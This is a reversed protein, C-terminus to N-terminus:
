KSCSHKCILDSIQIEDLNRAILMAELQTRAQGGTGILAGKKCDKKALIDLAAGCAAGTRLQTVYSGDLLGEIVGTETDVILIKAHISPMGKQIKAPFMNLSKVCATKEEACYSPMCLFTGDGGETVIRTRLPVQVKDKSFLAFADKVADVGDQLSFFQQIMAKSLLLM